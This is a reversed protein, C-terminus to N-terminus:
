ALASSALRRKLVQLVEFARGSILVSDEGIGHLVYPGESEPQAGYEALDFVENLLRTLEDDM